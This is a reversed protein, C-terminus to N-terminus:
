REGSPPFGRPDCSGGHAVGGGLLQTLICTFAGGMMPEYAHLGHEVVETVNGKMCYFRAAPAAPVWSPRLIFRIIQM